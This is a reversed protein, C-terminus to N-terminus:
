RGHFEPRRKAVFAETANRHDETQGATSQAEAEAALSDELTGDVALQRKIAAYALTLGAALRTALEHAVPLVEDDSAAM